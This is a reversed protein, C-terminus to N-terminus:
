KSSNSFKRVVRITYSTANAAEAEKSPLLTELFDALGRKVEYTYTTYHRLNEQNESYSDNNPRFLEPHDRQVVFEAWREVFGADLAFGPQEAREQLAAAVLDPRITSRLLPQPLM